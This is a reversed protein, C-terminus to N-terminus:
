ANVAEDDSGTAMSTFGVLAQERMLEAEPGNFVSHPTFVSARLDAEFKQNEKSAKNSHSGYSWAFAPVNDNDHEILDYYEEGDM